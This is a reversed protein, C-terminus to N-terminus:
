PPGMYLSHASPWISLIFFMKYEALASCVDATLCRMSLTFFSPLTTSTVFCSKSTDLTQM